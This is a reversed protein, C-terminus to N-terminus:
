IALSLGYLIWLHVPFFMYFMYKVLPSKLYNGREGNYFLIFPYALCSYNQIGGCMRATCVIAICVAFVPYEDLIYFATIMCIGYFSYDARIIYALAGMILVTVALVCPYIVPALTDIYLKEWEMAMMMVIGIVFLFLINQSQVDFCKGFHAFDYPVESLVAFLLMGGLYRKRSSTHKFGQILLFVYIPMAIRGIIRLIEAQPLLVAGVHDITMTLLAIIKLTFSDFIKTRM